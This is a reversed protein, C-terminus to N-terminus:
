RENGGWDSRAHKQSARTHGEIAGRNGRTHRQESGRAWHYRQSRNTRWRGLAPRVIDPPQDRPPKTSSVLLETQFVPSAVTARPATETTVGLARRTEGSWGSVLSTGNDQFERSEIIGSGFLSGNHGSTQPKGTVATDILTLVCNRGPRRSIKESIIDAM